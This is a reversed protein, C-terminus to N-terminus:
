PRVYIVESPLPPFMDLRSRAMQDINVKATMASLELRLQQWELELAAQQSRLSQLEGQLGRGQHKSYVVAVGFGLVLITLTTLLIGHIKM